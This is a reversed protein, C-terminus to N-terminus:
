SYICSTSYSNIESQSVKFFKCKFYCEIQSYISYFSFGLWLSLLGGFKSFLDNKTIKPSHVYTFEEADRPLINITIMSNDIKENIFTPSDSVDKMEYEYIEETCSPLCLENQCKPVIQRLFFLDFNWTENVGCMKYDDFGNNLVM